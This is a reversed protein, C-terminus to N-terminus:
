DLETRPMRGGRDQKGVRELYEPAAAVLVGLILGMIGMAQTSPATQWGAIEAVFAYITSSPLAQFWRWFGTANIIADIMLMIVSLWNPHGNWLPKQLYSLTLQMVVAIMVGLLGNIGLVSGSVGFSQLAEWTAWCGVLWVIRSTIKAGNMNLGIMNLGIM